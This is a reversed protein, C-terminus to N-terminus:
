DGGDFGGGDSDSVSDGFHDSDNDDSRHSEAAHAENGGFLGGIMNGLLVGGAVGMATQAAGALFGGGGGGWPQPRYDPAPRAGRDGFLGGLFGSGAARSEFEAIRDQAAELAQQQVIVTQALYYPAAPQAAIRERIFAEAEPDRPPSRREADALRDFLDAIARRDNADM